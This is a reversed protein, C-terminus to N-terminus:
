IALLFNFLFDAIKKHSEISYHLGDLESVPTIKNLDIFYCGNKLCINEYIDSLEKSQEISKKDFMTCFHGKFIDNSLKSPAMLIIKAKPAIERILAIIKDFGKYYDKSSCNYQIQTDNIGISLIVIDFSNDLVFPLYKFGIYKTGAPNDKFCTRNNEGQEIIEFKDKLSKKLIGSWRTNEDYRKGSKPIYGFTNSDGFCLVKKM